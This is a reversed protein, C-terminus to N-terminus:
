FILMNIIALVETQDDLGCLYKLSIVILALIRTTASPVAKLHWETFEASQCLKTLRAMRSSTSPLISPKKRDTFISYPLVEFWQNTALLPSFVAMLEPALESPLSLDSLVRNMLHEAASSSPLVPLALSSTPSASGNTIALFSAMRHALRGLRGTNLVIHRPQYTLMAVDQNTTQFSSPLLSPLSKWALQESNFLMCLDSLTVKASPRSVTALALLAVLNTLSLRPPAFELCPVRIVADTTMQAKRNRTWDSRPMREELMSLDSADTLYGSESFNAESVADTDSRSSTDADSTQSAFFLRRKKRRMKRVRISDDATQERGLEEEDEEKESESLRRKWRAKSLRQPDMLRPPGGMENWRERYFMNYDAPAFKGDKEFGMKIKRLYATWLQVVEVKVNEGVASLQDVWARM